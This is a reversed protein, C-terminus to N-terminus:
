GRYPRKLVDIKENEDLDSRQLIEFGLREALKFSPANGPSIMAWIDRKLNADAWDLAASCAEGAIGQGHVERSFIWGMEPEGDWVPEIGRKADFFGTNGVVKGDHEVMWGGYGCVTWQGVASIIRRWHDERRMPPGLFEQVEPQALIAEHM